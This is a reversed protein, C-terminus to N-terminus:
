SRQDAGAVGRAVEIAPRAPVMLFAAVACVGLVVGPIVHRAFSGFTLGMNMAQGLGLQPLVWPGFGAWAAVFFLAGAIWRTVAFTGRLLLITAFLITLAGPLIHWYYTASDVVVGVDSSMAGGMMHSMSPGRYLWPSALLWAGATMAALPVAKRM